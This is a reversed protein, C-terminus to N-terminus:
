NRAIARALDVVQSVSASIDGEQDRMGEPLRSSLAQVVESFEEQAFLGSSFELMEVMGSVMSTKQGVEMPKGGTLAAVLEAVRGIAHHLPLFEQGTPATGAEQHRLWLKGCELLAKVHQFYGTRNTEDVILGIAQDIATISGDASVLLNGANGANAWAFPLRDWNNILMDFGIVCGLAHWRDHRDLHGFSAGNYLTEAGAAFEHM